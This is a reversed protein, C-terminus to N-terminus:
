QPIISDRGAVVNQRRREEEREQQKRARLEEISRRFTEMGDMRAAQRLIQQRVDALWRAQQAAEYNGADPIPLLALLMTPIKIPGLHIFQQDIGWQQGAATFVWRPIGQQLLSDVMVSDLMEVVRLALQTELSGWEGRKASRYGRPIRWVRGDGYTPGIPRRTGVVIAGPVGVSAGPIGIALSEPAAVPARVGGVGSGVPAPAPAMAIPGRGLRARPAAVEVGDGVPDSIRMTFQRQETDDRTLQILHTAGYEQRTHTSVWVLAGLLIAHVVVSIVYWVPETPPPRPLLFSRM